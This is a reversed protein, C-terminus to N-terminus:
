VGLRGRLRQRKAELRRTTLEALLPLFINLTDSAPAIKNVLMLSPYLSEVDAKVIPRVVGTVRM